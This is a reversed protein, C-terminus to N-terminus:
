GREGGSSGAEPHRNLEWLDDATRMQLEAWCATPWGSSIVMPWLHRPAQSSEFREMAQRLRDFAEKGSSRL